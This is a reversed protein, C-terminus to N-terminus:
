NSFFITKGSRRVITPMKTLLDYFQDELSDILPRMNYNEMYSDTITRLVVRARESVEEYEDESLSILYDMLM